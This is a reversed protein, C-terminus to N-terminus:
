RDPELSRARAIPRGRAALGRRTEERPLASTGQSPRFKTLRAFRRGRPGMAAALEAALTRQGSFKVASVLAEPDGGAIVGRVGEGSVTMTVTRTVEDLAGRGFKFTGVGTVDLELAMEKLSHLGKLLAVLDANKLARTADSRKRM